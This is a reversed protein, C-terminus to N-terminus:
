EVEEEPPPLKGVMKIPVRFRRQFWADIAELANQAEVRAVPDAEDYYRKAKLSFEGKANSDIEISSRTERQLEAEGEM